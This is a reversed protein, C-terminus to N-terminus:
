EQQHKVFIIHATAFGFDDLACRWLCCPIFLRVISHLLHISNCDNKEIGNLEMKMKLQNNRM